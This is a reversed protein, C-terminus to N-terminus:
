IYKNTESIYGEKNTYNYNVFIIFKMIKIFYM